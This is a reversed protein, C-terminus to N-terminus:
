NNARSSFGRRLASLWPESPAATLLENTLLMPIHDLPPGPHHGTWHRVWYIAPSHIMSILKIQFMLPPDRPHQYLGSRHDPYRLLHLIDRSISAIYTHIHALSEGGGGGGRTEDRIKVLEYKIGRQSGDILRDENGWNHQRPSWDRDSATPSVLQSITFVTWRSAPLYLSGRLSIHLIQVNIFHPVWMPPREKGHWSFCFVISRYLEKDWELRWWRRRRDCAM